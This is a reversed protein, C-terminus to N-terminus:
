CGVPTVHKTQLSFVLVRQFWLHASATIVFQFTYQCTTHSNSTNVNQAFPSAISKATCLVLTGNTHTNKKKKSQHLALAWFTLEIFRWPTQCVWMLKWNICNITKRMVGGICLVGKKQKSSSNISSIDTWYNKVSNLIGVDVKLQYLENNKQNCWPLTGGRKRGSQHLTLAQFTLEIFRWPTWFVWM